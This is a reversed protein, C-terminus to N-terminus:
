RKKRTLIESWVIGSLMERALPNDKPAEDRIEGSAIPEMDAHCPDEGEHFASTSDWGDDKTASVPAPKPAPRPTPKPASGPSSPPPAPRKPAPKQKLKGMLVSIAIIIIIPIIGEM